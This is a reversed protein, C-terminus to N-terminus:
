WRYILNLDRLIIEGSNTAYNRRYWEQLPLLDFSITKRVLAECSDKVPNIIITDLQVPLSELFFGSTALSFTYPAEPCGGSFQIDLTIVDDEISSQIVRTEKVPDPMDMDGYIEIPKDSFSFTNELNQCKSHFTIQAGAAHAFCANSFTSYQHTPCPAQICVVDTPEKACVPLYETTCLIPDPEPLIVPKNKTDSAGDDIPVSIPTGTNQAQRTNTGTSESNTGSGGCGSLILFLSTTILVLLPSSIQNKM